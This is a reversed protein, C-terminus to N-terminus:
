GAIAAGGDIYPGLERRLLMRARRLWIRIRVPSSGVTAAIEEPSFGGLMGLVVEALEPPLSEECARRVASVLEEYEIEHQIDFPSHVARALETPAARRTARELRQCETQVLTRVVMTVYRGVREPDITWLEQAIRILAAQSLDEAADSATRRAFVTVFAPRLAALLADVAGAEDRQAARVLRVLEGREPWPGRRYPRGARRRETM